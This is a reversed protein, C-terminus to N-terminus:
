LKLVIGGAIGSQRLLPPVLEVMEGAASQGAYGLQDVAVARQPFLDLDGLKGNGGLTRSPVRSVPSLGPARVELGGIQFRGIGDEEALGFYFAYGPDVGGLAIVPLEDVM